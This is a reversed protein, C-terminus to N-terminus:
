LPKVNSGTEISMEVNNNSVILIGSTKNGNLQFILDYNQTNLNGLNINCKAPTIVQLAFNPEKIEKFEITLENGVIELDYIIQYGSTSYEKETEARIIVHNNEKEASVLINSDISNQVKDKRCSYSLFLIFVVPVLYNMYNTKIIVLVYQYHQRLKHAVETLIHFTPSKAGVKGRLM